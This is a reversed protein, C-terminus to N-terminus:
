CNKYNINEKELQKIYANVIEFQQKQTEFETDKLACHLLMHLADDVEKNDINGKIITELDYLLDEDLFIKRLQRKLMNKSSDSLDLNIIYEERYRKVATELLEKIDEIM